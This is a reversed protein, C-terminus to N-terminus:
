YVGGCAPLAHAIFDVDDYQTRYLVKFAAEKAIRANAFAAAYTSIPHAVEKMSVVRDAILACSMVDTDGECSRPMAGFVIHLGDREFARVKNSIEIAKELSIVDPGNYKPKIIIGVDDLRVEGITSIVYQVFTPIALIGLRRFDSCEYNVSAIRRQLLFRVYDIMEQVTLNVKEAKVPAVRFCEDVFGKAYQDSVLEPNINVEITDFNAAVPSGGGLDLKTFQNVSSGNKNMDNM